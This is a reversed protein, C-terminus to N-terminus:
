TNNHIMKKMKELTILYRSQIRLLEMTPAKFPNRDNDDYEMNNSFVMLQTLNIFKRFKKNQFRRKLRRHEDIVGDRNNPKKVEIFSLPMGNVLLTIDPRFIEDDKEYPLETVIHFSNNNFDELDILKIGSREILKEYFAKGLDENDLSLAIDDYFRNVEDLELTPNIRLISQEFIGKFINTKRDWTAGNLSLYQYGLRVLHLIVPIKVRSDENFKM